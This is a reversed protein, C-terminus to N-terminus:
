VVYRQLRIAYVKLIKFQLQKLRATYITQFVTLDVVDLLLGKLTQLSANFRHTRKHNKIKM